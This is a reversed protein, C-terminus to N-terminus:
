SMSLCLAANLSEGDFPEYLVHDAYFHLKRALYTVHDRTHNDILAITTIHLRSGRLTSLLLALTEPDAAASTLLLAYDTQLRWVLPILSAALSCCVCGGHLRQHPLDDLRLPTEGNDLLTIRCGESSLHTILQGVFATKVDHRLGTIVILHM